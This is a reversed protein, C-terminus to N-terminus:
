HEVAVGLGAARRHKVHAVVGGVLAAVDAEEEDRGLIAGGFAAAGATVAAGGDRAEGGADAVGVVGLAGEVGVAAAGSRVDVEEGIQRLQRRALEVEGPFVRKLRRAGVEGIRDHADAADLAAAGALRAGGAGLARQRARRETAALGLAAVAEVVVAVADDVVTRLAVVALLHADVALAH